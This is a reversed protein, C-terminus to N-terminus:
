NLQSLNGGRLRERYNAMFDQAESVKGLEDAISGVAVKEGDGVLLKFTDAHPGRAMAAGYRRDLDELDVTQDSLMLAVALNVVLQSEEEEMPRRPPLLPILKTLSAVASPWQRQRWHIDARLREADLSGDGELMDLAEDTRGLDSLGRARLQRRQKQLKDGLGEVESVQLAELAAEPNRDLLRVLALRAGIRAKEAGELRYRVQGELLEAARDLLDVEVLRDALGAIMRDGEPGVPTLEMFEQYLALARLPPVEPDGAGRYIEAFVERMRQAANRAAPGDPFNSVAERLAYLADRHRDERVYLDALKRLLTFEFLDGRWAFRLRELEAIAASPSLTGEEMGLDILALRARAQTPRHPGDRAEMWLKRAQEPDGNAHQLAGQVLKVRAMERDDLQGRLLNGIQITAAELNGARLFSEAAALGLDLRLNRPYAAILDLAEAFGTAAAPWDEAQAALAAQWLMAEREGVLAPHALSVSAGRFDQLMVQSAGKLLRVEPDLALRPNEAEIVEVSGLTESDLGHAFYFRALDLRAIGLREGELGRMAQQLAQRNDQYDEIGGRRWAELDFLGPSNSLTDAAREAGRREKAQSVLLGDRDRVLVGSRITAVEIGPSLPQLAIGQQTQLSRFQPFSYPLTLGMGAGRTPIVVLRDGADPDSVWTMRGAGIVPFRIRSGPGDKESASEIVPAALGREPLPSRPRLDVTWRSGERSLRPVVTPAAGIILITSGGDEMLRVEGLHPAGAAIREVVDKPAPRDFVLWLKEGRRFAAAATPRQWSFTMVVPVFGEAKPGQASSNMFSPMPETKIELGGRASDPIAAAKAPAAKGPDGKAEIPEVQATKAPAPKGASKDDAPQADAPQADAPQADALRTPGPTEELPAKAAAPPTAAAHRPPQVSRPTAEVEGGMTKPVLPTPAPSEAVAAVKEEPAGSPTEAAEGALTAAPKEASQPAERPTLDAVKPGAAAPVKEVAPPPAPEQREPEAAAFIDLVVKAGSRTVKLRSGEPVEVTVGDRTASVGAIQALRGPRLGSTDFDAPRDFVIRARGPAEELVNGVPEAWDFVLRSFDSHQGGRVRVRPLEAQPSAAAEKPPQEVPAAAAAEQTEVAAKQLDIVVKNDLRFHKLAHATALPLTLTRGDDSVQPAAAYGALGGRMVAGRFEAAEDFSIVLRDGEIRARYGVRSPWDFVLRGYDEHLGGRISVSAPASVAEAAAFPAAAALILCLRLLLTRM